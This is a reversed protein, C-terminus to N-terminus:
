GLGSGFESCGKYLGVSVSHCQNAKSAKMPSQQRIGTKVSLARVNAHNRQQDESKTVEYLTVQLFLFFFVRMNQRSGAVEM